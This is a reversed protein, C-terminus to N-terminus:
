AARTARSASRPSCPTCRCPPTKPAAPACTRRYPRALTARYRPARIMREPEAARAYRKVTNLSVGLRRSCELLGTGKDTLNHIQRWRQATTQAQQGENLPPGAGAWCATHAAVEKQAAEALSHWLHWCDGAQIAVPCRGASRRPTPVQATAASSRSARIAACGPSWRGRRYPRGRRRGAARDRRRDPVTAYARSRRLAFDDVGLVRQVGVDPLPIRLLVRLATHRSVPIGLATLLGAGARGALRRVAVGAQGGAARYAATATWCM